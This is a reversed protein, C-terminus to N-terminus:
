SGDTNANEGVISGYSASMHDENSAAVLALAISDRPL